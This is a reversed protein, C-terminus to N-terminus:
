FFLKLGEHSPIFGLGKYFELAQPRKKDTTLQVVHCGDERAKLIAWNVMVKGVGKGRCTTDIRVGEILARTGGQYTLYTIYTLQLTGVVKNKIKAVILFNNKDAIIMEFASYYKSPLPDEYRERTAGLVDDALLRVIDSVDERTALRIQIAM